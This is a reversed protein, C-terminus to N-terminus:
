VLRVPFVAGDTDDNGAFLLLLADPLLPPGPRLRLTVARTEGRRMGVVGTAGVRPNGWRDFVVLVAVSRCRAVHVEPCAAIGAVRDGHRSWGAGAEPAVRFAARNADLLMRAARPKGTLLADVGLDLLRQWEVAQDDDNGNFWVWVALGDAHADDVFQQTIVEIGSYVPPVQLVKHHPMAERTGFWGITENLGPSTAVEPALSKFHALIEDSFSAVLFRDPRSQAAIFAALAEAAAFGDPGDKIEVDLLRAPFTAAVEALTPITFDDPEYGAPPPRDGTRIGRFRYEVEPRDRCSWCDPVFWYGNDLTQLQVVTFDRVAGTGNTTRDVTDDHQVVLVRDATLMVDLELVDVGRLAAETYAFLTSHPAELDGGAHAVDLVRRQMWPDAVAADVATVPITALSAAAIAAAAIFLLGFRRARM